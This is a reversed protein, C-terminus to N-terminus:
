AASGKGLLKDVADLAALQFKARITPDKIEVAPSWVPKQTKPSVLQRGDAALVPRGPLGIWRKDNQRHLSCGNLRLGSTLTLNFFACLTGSQHRRYESVVMQGAM